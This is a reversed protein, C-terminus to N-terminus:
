DLISLLSNINDFEWSFIINLDSNSLELWLKQLRQILVDRQEIDDVVINWNVVWNNYNIEYSYVKWNQLYYKQYKQQSKDSMDVMRAKDLDFNKGYRRIFEEQERFLNKFYKDQRDFYRDFEDFVNLTRDIRYPGQYYIIGRSEINAIRNQYYIVLSIIFVVFIVIIWWSFWLYKNVKAFNRKISNDCNKVTSKLTKESKKM